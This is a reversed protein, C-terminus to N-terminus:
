QVPLMRAPNGALITEEEEDTLGLRRFAPLVDTFLYCWPDPPLFTMPAFPGSESCYGSDLGLFLKDGLGADFVAHIADVLPQWRAKWGGDDRVCINTPLFSAGRKMWEMITARYRADMLHAATHGIVVRSLDVGERDLLTLQSTEAGLRTCHTTIHVGTRLQARAGAIFARTEAGTMPAQSSGLKIVGARIDTGHIGESIERICFAALEEVSAERVYPWIADEPRKVFYTGMEIERYFGTAVVIHVGSAVSVERYLDPWGRWPPMTTDVYANMGYEERCRRLLPVANRLLYGRRDPHVPREEAIPEDREWDWLDSHLHEHMMVRDIKGPAVPGCATIVMGQSARLLASM